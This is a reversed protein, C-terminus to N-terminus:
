MIVIYKTYGGKALDEANRIDHELKKFKLASKGDTPDSLIQRM